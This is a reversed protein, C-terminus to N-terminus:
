SNKFGCSRKVRLVPFLQVSYVGVFAKRGTSNLYKIYQLPAEIWSSTDVLCNPMLPEKEHIVQEKALHETPHYDAPSIKSEVISVGLM